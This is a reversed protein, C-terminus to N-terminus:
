YHTVEKTRASDQCVAVAVRAPPTFLPLYSDVFEDLAAVRPIVFGMAPRNTDPRSGLPVPVSHAAPTPISRDEFAHKHIRGHAIRWGNSFFPLLFFLLSHRQNEVAVVVLDDVYVLEFVMAPLSLQSAM